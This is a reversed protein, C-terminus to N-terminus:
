AHPPSVKQIVLQFDLKVLLHRQYAPELFLRVLHVLPALNGAKEMEIDALLSISDAM